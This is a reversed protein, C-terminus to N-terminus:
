RKYLYLPLYTIIPMILRVIIRAVILGILGYFYLGIFMLIIQLVSSTIKIIYLQKKAAKAQLASFPLVSVVGLLSIAFIQSYFISELYQPFIFQYIYPALLIYLIIIPFIVIGFRFIKIGINSKIDEIDRTAFKPLALISMQKLLAKLQDPIAIAFLYIALQVTGLYHFVLVKDIHLAVGGLINILSLHKAYNLTNTDESENPKNKNLTILYFVAAFITHSLFYTLIILLVNNTFFLVTIISIISLVNTSGWYLATEKFKKKGNLFPAFINFSSLLPAFIAIILMSVSLEINGNAFYYISMAIAITVLAISWKLNIWFANKIIGEFGRSVSQVIATGLGTLTFAALIGAVSLIYKYTGYVEKPVLNAFAIALLLASSSAIVQGFTLWFGGKALYIMDTKTYKESWKLFSYVKSKM